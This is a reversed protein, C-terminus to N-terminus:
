GGSVEPFEQFGAFIRIFGNGEKGAKFDEFDVAANWKEYFPGVPGAGTSELIIFTKANNGVCKLIGSLVAAAAAKGDNEWRAAETCILGQFTGSRGANKNKATAWEISSGNEWVAKRENIKGPNSWNFTDNDHYVNLIKWLSDVDKYQSGIVCGRARFRQMWWRMFGVSITSCGRQRPKLLILRIPKNNALCWAAVEIFREQLINLTVPQLEGEKPQIVGYTAIWAGFSGRIAASWADLPIAPRSSM